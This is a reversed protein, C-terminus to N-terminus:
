DGLQFDLELKEEKKYSKVKNLLYSKLTHLYKYLSNRKIQFNLISLELLIEEHEMNKLYYLIAITRMKEDGIELILEKIIQKLNLMDVDMNRNEAVEQIVEINDLPQHQKYKRIYDIARSRAIVRIMVEDKIGNESYKDYRQFVTVWTEQAIDKFFFPYIKRGIREVLPNYRNVLKEFNKNDMLFLREEMLFFM